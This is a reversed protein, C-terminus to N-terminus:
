LRGGYVRRSRPHAEVYMYPMRNFAEVMNRRAVPNGTHIVFLDVDVTLHDEHWMKELEKVLELVEEDFDLDNDLWVQDWHHAALMKGAQTLNRAYDFDPGFDRVDDIVLRNLKDASEAFKM